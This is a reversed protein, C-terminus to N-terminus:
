RGIRYPTTECIFQFGKRLLIPRSMPAADVVLYPVGRRIAEQVRVDFLASYIGKGRYEPAVAGGHIEALDGGPPFEIWGSGIPEDRDYACFIVTRDFACELARELPRWPKGNNGRTNAVVVDRIQDVTEIRAVRVGPPLTGTWSKHAANDYVMLAETDDPKFGHALLREALNDPTDFDHHKWEFSFGLSAFYTKQRVIAADVNARTLKALQVFGSAGSETPTLRLFEPFVESRFGPQDTAALQAAYRAFVDQTHM